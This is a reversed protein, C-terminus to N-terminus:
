KFLSQRSRWVGRDCVGEDIRGEEEDTQMSGAGM